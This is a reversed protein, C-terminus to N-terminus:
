SVAFSQWDVELEVLELEDLELEVELLVVDEGDELELLLELLELEGLVDLPEAVELVLEPVELM